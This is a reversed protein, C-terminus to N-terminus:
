FIEYDKDVIDIVIELLEELGKGSLDEVKIYIFRPVTNKNKFYSAYNLPWPYKSKQVYELSCIKKAENEDKVYGIINYGFARRNELPDVWLRLIIFM